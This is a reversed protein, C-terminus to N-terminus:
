RLRPKGLPSKGEPKRVVVNVERGHTSYQRDMKNERIQYNWYYKMLLLIIFSRM